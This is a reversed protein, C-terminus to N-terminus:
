RVSPSNGPIGVRIIGAPLQRTTDGGAAREPTRPQKGIEQEVDDIAVDTITFIVDGFLLDSDHYKASGPAVVGILIIDNAAVGAVQTLPNILVKLGFAFILRHQEFDRPTPVSGHERRSLHM